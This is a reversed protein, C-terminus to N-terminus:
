DNGPLYTPTKGSLLSENIFPIVLLSKIGKTTRLAAGRVMGQYRDSFEYSWRDADQETGILVGALYKELTEVQLYLAQFSAILPNEGPAMIGLRVFLGNDSTIRKFKGVVHLRRPGEPLQNVDNDRYALIPNIEKEFFTLMSRELDSGAQLTSRISKYTADLDEFCEKEAVQVVHRSNYHLDDITLAGAPISM